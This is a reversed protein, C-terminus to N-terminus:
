VKQGEKKAVALWLEYQDAPSTFSNRLKEAHEPDSWPVISGNGPWGYRDSIEQVSTGEVRDVAGSARVIAFAAM